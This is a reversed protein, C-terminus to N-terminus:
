RMRTPRHKAKSAFDREKGQEAPLEIGGPRSRGPNRSPDRQVVLAVVFLAATLELHLERASDCVREVREVLGGLLWPGAM